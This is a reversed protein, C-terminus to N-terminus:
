CNWLPISRSLAFESKQPWNPWSKKCQMHCKDARENDVFPTLKGCRQSNNAAIDPGGMSRALQAADMGRHSRSAGRLLPGFFREFWNWLMVKAMQIM